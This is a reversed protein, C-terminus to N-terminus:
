VLEVLKSEVCAREKKIIIVLESSSVFHNNCTPCAYSLKPSLSHHHVTICSTEHRM